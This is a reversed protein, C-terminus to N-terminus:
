WGGTPKQGALAEVLAEDVMYDVVLRPTYYSGTQNRATERTEPNVAALLNEFVKGLLEPDLAVERDTPTNEEM